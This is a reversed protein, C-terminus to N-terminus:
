FSYDAVTPSVFKLDSTKNMYFLFISYGPPAWKEFVGLCKPRMEPSMGRKTGEFRLRRSGRFKTTIKIKM